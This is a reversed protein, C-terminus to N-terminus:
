RLSLMQEYVASASELSGLNEELDALFHWLRTSRWAENSRSSASCAPSVHLNATLLHAVDM